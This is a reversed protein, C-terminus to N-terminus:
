SFSSYIRLAPPHPPPPPPPCRARARTPDREERRKEVRVLSTKGTANRGTVMLAKHQEVKVSMDSVIAQGRPTTITVHDISITPDTHVAKSGHVQYKM